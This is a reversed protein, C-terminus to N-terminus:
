EAKETAVLRIRNTIPSATPCEATETAIAAHIDKLTDLCDKEAAKLHHLRQAPTAADSARTLSAIMDPGNVMAAASAKCIHARYTM